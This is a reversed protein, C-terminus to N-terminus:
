IATVPDGDGGVLRQDEVVVGGGLPIAGHGPALDGESADGGLSQASAAGATGHQRSNPWAWGDLWRSLLVGIILDMESSTRLSPIVWSCNTLCQYSMWPGSARATGPM